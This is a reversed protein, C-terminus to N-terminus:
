TLTPEGSIDLTASFSLKDTHPGSPNLGSPIASIDWTTSGSDPFVIKFDTETGLNSLLGTSAGQTAHAPLWNGQIQVQGGDKLGAVKKKWTDDHSSIDAIDVSFGPGDINTLEAIKTFVPTAGGDSMQLQIGLAHDGM